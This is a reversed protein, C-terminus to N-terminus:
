NGGLLKVKAAAFEKESLHGDARLKALRELEDTLKQGANAVTTRQANSVSGAIDYAMQRKYRDMAEQTVRVFPAISSKLVLNVAISNAGDWLRISGFFITYSSDITQIRDLNMQVQHLGFFMGRHILLVRRNTCVALWTRGDRYGSTLALIDEGEGLIKPLYRIEKHTYFIYRDPLTAIQQRVEALSPM